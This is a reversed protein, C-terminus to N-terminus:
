PQWIGSAIVPRDATALNYVYTWARAGGGVADIELRRYESAAPNKPDCNEYDDLLSWLSPDDFSILEGHVVKRGGLILGPYDGLDYLLGHVQATGLWLTKTELGLLAHGVQGRRLHGYVFLRFCENM